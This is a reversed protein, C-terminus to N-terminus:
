LGINLNIIPELFKYVALLFVCCVIIFILFIKLFWFSFSSESTGPKTDEIIICTQNISNTKDKQNTNTTNYNPVIFKRFEECSPLKFYISCKTQNRKNLLRRKAEIRRSQEASLTENPYRIGISWLCTFGYYSLCTEETFNFLETSNNAFATPPDPKCSLWPKFVFFESYISNNRIMELNNYLLTNYEGNNITLDNNQDSSVGKASENKNEAKVHQLTLTRRQRNVSAKKKDM